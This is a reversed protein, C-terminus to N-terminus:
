VHHMIMFGMTVMLFLRLLRMLLQLFFARVYKFTVKLLKCIRMCNQVAKLQVSPPTGPTRLLGLSNRLMAESRKIASEYGRCFRRSKIFAPSYCGSRLM